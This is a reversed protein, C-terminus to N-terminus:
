STKHAVLGAYTRNIILRGNSCSKALVRQRIVSSKVYEKHRAPAETWSTRTEDRRVRSIQLTRFYQPKARPASCVKQSRNCLDQSWRRECLQRVLGMNRWRQQFSHGLCQYRTRFCWEPRPNTQWNLSRSVVQLCRLLPLWGSGDRVTRKSQCTIWRWEWGLHNRRQAM